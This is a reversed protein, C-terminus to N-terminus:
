SKVKILNYKFLLTIAFNMLFHVAFPALINNTKFYIWGFILSPITINLLMLPKKFYQVHFCLFLLTTIIIATWWSDVFLFILNQIIGRFLLEEFLAGFFMFGFIHLVSYNQYSMNTEDIYNSPTYLTLIVGFLILAFSASVVSVAMSIPQSFSLFHQITFLDYVVFIFIVAMCIFTFSGFVTIADKPSFEKKTHISQDKLSQM